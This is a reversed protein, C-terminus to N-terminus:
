KKRRSENRKLANSYEEDTLEKSSVVKLNKKPDFVILSKEPNFTDMPNYLVDNDDIIANYGQKKLRKQYIKSVPIDSYTRMFEQYGEKKLEDVTYNAYKNFFHDVGSKDYANHLNPTHGIIRHVAEKAMDNCVKVKMDSYLKVFEEVQKDHDTYVLDKVNTYQVEYIKRNINSHRRFKTMHEKYYDNDHDNITVYTRDKHPTTEAVTSIRNIKSGKELRNKGACTLSGDKNQFRRVGWKQGKIGHHQLSANNEM